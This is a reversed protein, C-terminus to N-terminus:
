TLFRDPGHGFAACCHRRRPGPQCQRLPGMIDTVRRPEQRMRHHGEPARGARGDVATRGVINLLQERRVGVLHRAHAKRDRRPGRRVKYIIFRCRVGARRRRGKLVARARRSRRQRPTALM